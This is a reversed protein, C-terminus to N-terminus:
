RNETRHREVTFESDGLMSWVAVTPAFHAPRVIVTAMASSENVNIAPVAVLAPILVCVTKAGSPQVGVHGLATCDLQVTRTRMVSRSVDALAVVLRARRVSIIMVVVLALVVPYNRVCQAM